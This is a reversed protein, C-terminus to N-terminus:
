WAGQVLLTLAHFDRIEHSKMTVTVRFIQGRGRNRM